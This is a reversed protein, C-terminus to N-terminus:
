LVSLYISIKSSLNAHENSYIYIVNYKSVTENSYSFFETEYILTEQEPISRSNSCNLLHINGIDLSSSDFKGILLQSPLLLSSREFTLYNKKTDLITLSSDDSNEIETM